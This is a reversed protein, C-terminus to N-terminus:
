SVQLRQLFPGQARVLEARAVECVHQLHRCCVDCVSAALEASAVPHALLSLRLDCVLGALQLTRQRPSGWATGACLCQHLLFRICSTSCAWESCTTRAGSGARRECRGSTSWSLGGSCHPSHPPWGCRTVPLPCCLPPSSSPWFCMGLSTPQLVHARCAHSPSVLPRTLRHTDRLLRLGSLAYRVLQYKYQPLCLPHCPPLDPQHAASISALLSARTWCCSLVCRPLPLPLLRMACARRVCASCHVVAILLCATRLGVGIRRCHKLLAHVYGLWCHPGVQAAEQGLGYVAAEEESSLAELRDLAPQVM